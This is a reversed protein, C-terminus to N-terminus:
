DDKMAIYSFETGPSLLSARFNVGVHTYGAGTPIMLTDDEWEIVPDLSSGKYVSIVKSADRYVISYTDGHSVTNAEPVILDDMTTPGTGRLIHLRNNSIGTEFGVALYSAMNIDSCVAISSFGAGGNITKVVVKPSKTTMPTEWLAAATTLFANNIGLADPLGFFGNEWVKLRGVGGKKRWKNGVASGPIYTFAVPHNEIQTAPATAWEPELRVVYGHEWQYDEGDTWTVLRTFQCGRPILRTTEVTETFNMVEGRNEAFWEAVVTGSSDTIEIRMDADTPFPGGLKNDYDINLAGRSLALTGYENRHLM